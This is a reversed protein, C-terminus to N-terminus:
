SMREEKTVYMGWDRRLSGIFESVRGEFNSPHDYGEKHRKRRKGPPVFFRKGLHGDPLASSDFSRTWPFTQHTTTGRDGKYLGPGMSGKVDRRGVPSHGYLTVVSTLSRGHPDVRQSLRGCLIIPVSPGYAIDLRLTRTRPVFCHPCLDCM